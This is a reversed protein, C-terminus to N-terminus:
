GEGLRGASGLPNGTHSRMCIVLLAVFFLKEYVSMSMEPTIKKEKKLALVCM